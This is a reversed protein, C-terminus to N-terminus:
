LSCIIKEIETSVDKIGICSTVMLRTVMLSDILKTYGAVSASTASLKVTFGGRKSMLLSYSRSDLILLCALLYIKTEVKGGGFEEIAKRPDKGTLWYNSFCDFVYSKPNQKVPQGEIADDFQGDDYTEYNGTFEYDYGDYNNIFVLEDNIRTCLAELSPFTLVERVLYFLECTFSFDFITLRFSTLDVLLVCRAISKGFRHEGSCYYLTQKEEYEVRKSGSNTIVICARKIGKEQLKTLSNNIM